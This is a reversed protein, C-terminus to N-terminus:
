FIVYDYNVCQFHSRSTACIGFGSTGAYKRVFVEMMEIRSM